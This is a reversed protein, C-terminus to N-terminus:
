RVSIGVQTLGARQADALLATIQEYRAAADSDIQLAPQPNRDAEFQLVAPLTSAAVPVGNWSLSGDAGVGLHVTDAPPPPPDESPIPLNLDLKTELLPATVMFIVLLVMMVDILPTVNLDSLAPADSRAFAM